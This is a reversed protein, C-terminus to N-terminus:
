PNKKDLWGEIRAIREGLHRIAEWLRDIEAHIEPSPNHQPGNAQQRGNRRRERFERYVWRAVILTMLGQWGKDVFGYVLNLTEADM